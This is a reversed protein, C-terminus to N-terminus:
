EYKHKNLYSTLGSVFNDPGLFHYMMRIISAGKGYSIRDFIENIQDPHKVKASIPHSTTLSDMDFTDYTNDLCFKELLSAEPEVHDAGLVEVFSAFGENLWLSFHFFFDFYTAFFDQLDILSKSM